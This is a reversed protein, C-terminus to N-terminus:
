EYLEWKLGDGTAGWHGTEAWCALRLYRIYIANTAVAAVFPEVKFASFNCSCLEFNKSSVTRKNPKTIFTSNICAIFTINKSSMSGFKVTSFTIFMIM